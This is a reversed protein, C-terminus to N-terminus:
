FIENIFYRSSILSAISYMLGIIRLVVIARTTETDEQILKFRALIKTFFGTKVIMFLGLMFATLNGLLQTYNFYETLWREDLLWNNWAMTILIRSIIGPVCIALFVWLDKKM